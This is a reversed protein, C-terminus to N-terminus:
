KVEVVCEIRTRANTRMWDHAEGDKVAFVHSKTYVLFTGNQWLTNFKTIQNVTMRTPTWNFLVRMPTFFRAKSDVTEYKKGFYKVAKEIIHTHTGRRDKRGLAKCTKYAEEYSVGCVIAIAKVACDNAECYKASDSSLKSFLDTRATSVKTM